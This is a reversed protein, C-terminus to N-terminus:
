VIVFLAVTFMPTCTKSQVYTKLLKPHTGLCQIAPCICVTYTVKQLVAMSHKLLTYWKVKGGATCSPELQEM